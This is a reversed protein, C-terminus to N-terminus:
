GNLHRFTYQNAYRIFYDDITHYLFSTEIISFEIDSAWRRAIVYYQLSRASMASSTGM